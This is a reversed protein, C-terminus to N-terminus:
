VGAHQMRMVLRANDKHSWLWWEEIPDFLAAKQKETFINFLRIMVQPDYFRVLTERGNKLKGQLYPQLHERLDNIDLRSWIWSLSQKDREEFLLRDLKGSGALWSPLPVHILWPAVEDLGHEPTNDFLSRREGEPLLRRISTLGNKYIAADVLLYLRTDPLAAHSEPWSAPMKAM